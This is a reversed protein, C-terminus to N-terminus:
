GIIGDEPKVTLADYSENMKDVKHNEVVVEKGYREYFQEKVDNALNEKFTEFGM